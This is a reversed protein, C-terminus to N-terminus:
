QTNTVVKLTVTAGECSTQNAGSEHFELYYNNNPENFTAGPAIATEPGGTEGRFLKEWGTNESGAVFDAAKCGAAAHATDISPTATIKKLTYTQPSTNEFALGLTEKQGPVIGAAFTVKVPLVLAQASKTGVPQSSEGEGILTSLYYGFAATAVVLVTVFTSVATRRKM